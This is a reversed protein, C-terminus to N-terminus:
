PQTKESLTEEDARVEVEAGEAAEEDSASAFEVLASLQKMKLGEIVDDPCEPLLRKATRMLGEIIPEPNDPDQNAAKAIKLADMMQGVTQDAIDYTQGKLTVQKQVSELADLDLLEM